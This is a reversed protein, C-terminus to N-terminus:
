RLLTVAHEASRVAVTGWSGELHETPGEQWWADINGFDEEGTADTAPHDLHPGDNWHVEGRLCWRLRAYPYQEGAAPPWYFQPHGEVLVADLVLCLCWADWEVNLVWSEPLYVKQMSEPPLDRMWRM